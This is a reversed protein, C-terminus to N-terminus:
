AKLVSDGDPKKEDEWAKPSAGLLFILKPFIGLVLSWPDTRLSANQILETIRAGIEARQVSQM